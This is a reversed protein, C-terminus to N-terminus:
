SMGPLKIGGQKLDELIRKNLEYKTEMFKHAMAWANIMVKYGDTELSSIAVRFNPVPLLSESSHITQSIISNLQDFDIGYNFKMEIDIRRTGKRSLNFIVENSLKSNPVIIMKNDFSTVVTYFLQISSVTGEQGQTIINDGAKYPRLLLILIGSAFNQLTGSLALGAAVGMAAFLATFITMKIGLIPMIVLFLILQLAINILGMLFPRISDLRPKDLANIIQKKIIKILWEGIFFLVIAIIIKPGFNLLWAHALDYIDILKKDM